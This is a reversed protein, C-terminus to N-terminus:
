KDMKLFMQMDEKIRQIDDKGPMEDYHSQNRLRNELRFNKPRANVYDNFEKQTMKLEKAALSLRRHEWGYTHNYSASASFGYGVTVQGSVNMQKGEYRMTDQLSEINLNEVKATIGKGQVQ